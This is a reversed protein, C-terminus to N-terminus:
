LWYFKQEILKLTHKYEFHGAFLDNHQKLMKQQLFGHYYIGVIRM